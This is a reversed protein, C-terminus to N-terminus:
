LAAAIACAECPRTMERLTRDVCQYHQRPPGIRLPLIPQVIDDLLRQGLLPAPVIRPVRTSRTPGGPTRTGATGQGYEASWLPSGPVPLVVIVVGFARTRLAPDKVNGRDSQGQLRTRGATRRM